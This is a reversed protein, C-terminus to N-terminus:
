GARSYRDKDRSLCRPLGLSRVGTQPPAVDAAVARSLSAAIRPEMSQRASTMLSACIPRSVAVGSMMRKAAARLAIPTKDVVAVAEATPRDTAM